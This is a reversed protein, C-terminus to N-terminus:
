TYKNKIFQRSLGTEKSANRVSPYLKGNISVSKSKATNYSLLRNRNNEKYAANIFLKKIRVSLKEKFEPTNTTLKFKAVKKAIIEPRSNTIRIASSTKFRFDKNEWLLKHALSRKDKVHQQNSYNTCWVSRAERAEKKGAAKKLKSTLNTRYDINKWLETTIEKQKESRIKKDSIPLNKYWEECIVKQKNRLNVDSWIKQLKLSIKNKTDESHVRGKYGDTIDINKAINLCFSNNYFIDLLNQEIEYAKKRDSTPLTFISFDNNENYAKQFKFNIHTNNKLLYLHRYIRTKIEGSGIYFYNTNRNLILYVGSEKANEKIVKEKMLNVVYNNKTFSIDNNIELTNKTNLIFANGYFSDLISNGIYTAETLTINEKFMKFNICKDNNFIDQLRKCYHIGLELLLEDYNKNFFSDGISILVENNKTCMLYICYSNMFFGM